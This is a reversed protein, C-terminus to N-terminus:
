NYTRPGAADAYHPASAAPFWTIVAFKVSEISERRLVRSGNHTVGWNSKTIPTEQTKSQQFACTECRSQESDTGRQEKAPKNDRLRTPGLEQASRLQTQLKLGVSRRHRQRPQWDRQM